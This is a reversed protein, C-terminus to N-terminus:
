ATARAALTAAGGALVASRSAYSGTGHAVVASDGQLSEVPEFLGQCAIVVRERQLRAVSEHHPHFAPAGRRGGRTLRREGRGFSGMM